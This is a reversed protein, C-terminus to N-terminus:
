LEWIFNIGAYESFLKELAVIRDLSEEQLTMEVYGAWAIKVVYATAELRRNRVSQVVISDLHDYKCWRSSRFSWKFLGYRLFFVRFSTFVVTEVRVKVGERHVPYTESYGDHHFTESYDSEWETRSFWKSVDLVEERWGDPAVVLINELLPPIPLM